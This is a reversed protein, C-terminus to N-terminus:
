RPPGQRIFSRMEQLSGRKWSINEVWWNAGVEAYASVLATDYVRDKGTLNGWQVMSYDQDQNKKCLHLRVYNFCEGVQEPTMQDTLSIGKGIPCAGDWRAARRMPRRNPWVGGVWIPIRPQQIPSPLHRVNDLHYYQGQYSISEGSWLLSIIDLAEDLREGYTHTALTEHYNVYEIGGGTGVGLIVRGNSLHDLTVVERALKWPRRRTVPTVLTGIKLHHTRTAIAALMIWPDSVEDGWKDGIHDWLFFGNWGAEEAEYAVQAVLHIDAYDGHCNPIAIGFKM